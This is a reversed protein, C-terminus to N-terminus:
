KLKAKQPILFVVKTGNGNNDTIEMFINIGLTKRINEIRENTITTALSKHSIANTNMAHAIGPGNDIVQVQLANEAKSYIVEIRGEGPPMNRMGHEVANEIFPQSLMPPIKLMDPLIDDTVSVQYQFSNDFRLQQLKLYSSVLKLDDSVTVMESRSGELVLRMLGSFESIYTVSDMPNNQLIFNQIASLANYMFHPNMQSRLLRQKGQELSLQSKLRNQRSFLMFVLIILIILIVAAVLLYTRSNLKQQKLRNDRDLLEIQQEKKETEYQIELEAIKNKSEISVLSDKIQTYRMFNLLAQEHDGKQKSLEFLQFYFEKIQPRSSIEEAVKLGKDIIAEAQQYDDIRIHIKALNKYSEAIGRLDGDQKRIALSQRHYDLAQTFQKRELYVNGINNLVNSEGRAYGANRFMELAKNYYELSLSLSDQHFYILGINNYSSGIRKEDKTEIRAMLAKQHYEFAKELNDNQYYIYGINNLAFGQYQQNRAIEGARLLKNYQVMASDYDGMDIYAQGLMNLFYLKYYTHGAYELASYLIKSVEHYSNEKRLEMALAYYSSLINATDDKEIHVILANQLSDPKANVSHLPLPLLFLLLFSINKM